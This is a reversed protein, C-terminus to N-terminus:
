RVRSTGGYRWRENNNNGVGTSKGARERGVCAVPLKASRNLSVKIQYENLRAGDFKVDEGLSVSQAMTAADEGTKARSRSKAASYKCNLYPRTYLSPPPM